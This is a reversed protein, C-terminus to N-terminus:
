LSINAREKERVYVRIEIVFNTIGIGGFFSTNTYEKANKKKERKVRSSITSSINNRKSGCENAPENPQAQFDCLFVLFLILSKMKSKCKVAVVGAFFSGFFIVCFWERACICVSSLFSVVPCVFAWWTKLSWYPCCCCRCCFVLDNIKHQNTSLYRLIWRLPGVFHNSSWEKSFYFSIRLSIRNGDHDGIYIYINSTRKKGNIREKKREIKKHKLMFCRFVNLM